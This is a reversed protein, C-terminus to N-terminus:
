GRAARTRGADRMRADMDGTDAGGVADVGARVNDEVIPLLDEPDLGRYSDLERVMSEAARRAMPGVDARLSGVLALLGSSVAPAAADPM